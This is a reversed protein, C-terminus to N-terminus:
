VYTYTDHPGTRDTIATQLSLLEFSALSALVGPGWSTCSWMVLDSKLFKQIERIESFTALFRKNQNLDDAAQRLSFWDDNGIDDEKIRQM